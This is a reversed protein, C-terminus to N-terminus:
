QIQIVSASANAKIEVVRKEVNRAFEFM